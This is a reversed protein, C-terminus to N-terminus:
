VFCYLSFKLQFYFHLGPIIRDPGTKASPISFEGLIKAAKKAESKLSRPFPTNVM